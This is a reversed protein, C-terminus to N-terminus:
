IFPIDLDHAKLHYIIHDYKLLKVNKRSDNKQPTMERFNSM